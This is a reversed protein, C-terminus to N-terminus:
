FYWNELKLPGAVNMLLAKASSYIYDEPKKTGMESSRKNQVANWEFRTSLTPLMVDMGALGREACPGQSRSVRRPCFMGERRRM